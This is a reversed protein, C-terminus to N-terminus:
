FQNGHNFKEKIRLKRAHTLYFMAKAMHEAYYYDHEMAQMDNKANKAHHAHHRALALNEHANKMASFYLFKFNAM